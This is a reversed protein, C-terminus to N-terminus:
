RKKLRDSIAYTAVGGLIAGVGLWGWWPIGEEVEDSSLGILRGLVGVPGGYRDLM